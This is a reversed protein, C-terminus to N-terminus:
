GGSTDRNPHCTGVTGPSQSCCGVAGLDEGPREQRGLATIGQKSCCSPLLHNNGLVTGDAGWPTQQERAPQKCPCTGKHQCSVSRAIGLAATPLEMAASLEWKWGAGRGAPLAALFSFAESPKSEAAGGAPRALAVPASCSLGKTGCPTRGDGGCDWRTRGPVPLTDPSLPALLLTFDSCHSSGVWM